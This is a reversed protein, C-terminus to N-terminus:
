MVGGVDLNKDLPNNSMEHKGRLIKIFIELNRITMLTFGIPLALYPIWMPMSLAPSVQGSDQIFEVLKIGYYAMATTFVGAILTIVTVVFIQARKPVIELLIDISVHVGKRFCTSGGIFAIWIMLYKVVEEAWTISSNMFYRMIVNVFIIVTTALLALGIANEEIKNLLKM